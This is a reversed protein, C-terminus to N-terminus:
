PQCHRFIGALFLQGTLGQLGPPWKLPQHHINGCFKGSQFGMIDFFSNNIGQFHQSFKELCAM